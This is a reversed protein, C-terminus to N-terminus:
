PQDGATHQCKDIDRRLDKAHAFPNRPTSWVHLRCGARTREPRGTLYVVEHDGSLRSAVALGEALPEDSPIAAFFADWDKRRGRLHVLRHRVDAVVGDLDIVAYPPDTAAM